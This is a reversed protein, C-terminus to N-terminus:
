QACNILLEGSAYFMRDNVVRANKAILLFMLTTRARTGRHTRQAHGGGAPHRGPHDRQDASPPQVIPMHMVTGPSSVSGSLHNPPREVSPQPVQAQRGPSGTRLAGRGTNHLYM